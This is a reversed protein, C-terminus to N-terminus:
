LMMVHPIIIVPHRAGSLANQQSPNLSQSPTNDYAGHYGYAEFDGDRGLDHLARCTYM